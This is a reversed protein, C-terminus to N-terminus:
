TNPQCKESSVKKTDKEINSSFVAASALYNPFLLIYNKGSFGDVSSYAEVKAYEGYWSYTPKTPTICDGRQYKADLSAFSVMPFVFLSIIIFRKM